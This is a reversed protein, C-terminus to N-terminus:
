NNAYLNIYRILKKTEIDAIVKNETILFFLFVSIILVWYWIFILLMFPFALIMKIIQKM